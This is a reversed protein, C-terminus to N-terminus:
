ENNKKGAYAKVVPIQSEILNKLENNDSLLRKIHSGGVEKLKGKVIDMTNNMAIKAKSTDFKDDKKLEKIFTQYTFRIGARVTQKVKKEQKENIEINVKKLLKLMLSVLVTAVIALLSSVIPHNLLDNLKKKRMM